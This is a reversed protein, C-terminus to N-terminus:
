YSLALLPPARAPARGLSFPRPTNLVTAAAEGAALAYLRILFSAPPVMKGGISAQAACILCAEGLHVDGLHADKLHGGGFHVGGLFADHGSAHPAHSGHHFHEHGHPHTHEHDNQQHPKQGHLDSVHPDSFHATIAGARLANGDHQEGGQESIGRESILPADHHHAAVLLASLFMSIAAVLRLVVASQSFRAQSFGAQALGVQSLGARKARSFTKAGGVRKLLFAIDGAIDGMGRAHDARSQRYHGTRYMLM